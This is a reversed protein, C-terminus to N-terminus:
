KFLKAIKRKQEINTVISKPTQRLVIRAMEKLVDELSYGTVDLFVAGGITDWVKIYEAGTRNEGAYTIGGFDQMPSMTERLKRIYEKKDDTYYM